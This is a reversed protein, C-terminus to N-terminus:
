ERKIVEAVSKAIVNAKDITAAIKDPAVIQVRDGDADKVKSAEHIRGKDRAQWLGILVPIGIAIWNFLETAAEQTLWGKGAVYAAAATVVYQLLSKFQTSNMEPVGDSM